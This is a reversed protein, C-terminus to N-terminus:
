VVRAVGRESLLRHVIQNHEAADRAWHVVAGLRTANREFQELYDALHSITHQKIAAAHERLEEWEPLGHACKDRKARIFWLAQDHWHAHDRDAVFDAAAVAHNM